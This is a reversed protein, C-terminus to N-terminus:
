IETEAKCAAGENLLAALMQEDRKDLAEKYLVLNQIIIDLEKALFDANELFLETWM